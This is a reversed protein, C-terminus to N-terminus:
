PHQLDSPELGANLILLSDLGLLKHCHHPPAAPRGAFGWSMNGAKARGEAAPAVPGERTDMAPRTVM